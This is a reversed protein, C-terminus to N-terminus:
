YFAINFLHPKLQKRFALLNQNSRLEVPLENWAVAAAYLFSQKGYRNNYKPVQQLTKHRSRLNRSPQHVTVLEILYAPALSNLCKFVYVLVKFKIRCEVPLWHLSRRVDTIHDTRPTKTILRAACNQVLQLRVILYDPLGTLITNGYDLRSTVYSQVLTKCADTTIFDRIRSIARLHYYSSRCMAAIQKDMNVHNDWLSGLNKVVKAPTVNSLGVQLSWHSTNIKSSRPTLIIFETKDENMKLM